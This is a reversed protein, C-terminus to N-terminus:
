VSTTTELNNPLKNWTSPAVYLLSQMGLKFQFYPLKLKKNLAGRAVWNYQQSPLFVENFHVSCQNYSTGSVIVQLYGDHM